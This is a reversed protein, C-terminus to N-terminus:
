VDFEELLCLLVRAEAFESGNLPSRLLVTVALRFQELGLPM